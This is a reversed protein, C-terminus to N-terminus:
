QFYLIKEIYNNHTTNDAIDAETYMM